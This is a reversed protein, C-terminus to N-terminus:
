LKLDKKAQPQEWYRVMLLNKLIKHELGTCESAHRLFRLTNAVKQPDFDGPAGSRFSSRLIRLIIHRSPTSYNVAKLSQRYLQRYAVTIAEKAIM